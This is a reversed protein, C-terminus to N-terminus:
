KLTFVRHLRLLEIVNVVNPRANALAVPAADSKLRKQVSLLAGVGSSDIFEVQGLDLTVSQLQDNWVKSLATKFDGVTAAEFKTQKIRVTLARGDPSFTFEYPQQM